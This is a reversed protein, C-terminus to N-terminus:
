PLVVEIMYSGEHVNDPNPIDTEKIAPINVLHGNGFYDIFFKGGVPALFIGIEPELGFGNLTTPPDEWTSYGFYQAFEPFAAPQLDTFDLNYEDGVLGLEGGVGVDEDAALIQYVFPMDDGGTLPLKAALLGMMAFNLTGSWPDRSIIRESGNEPSSIAGFNVLAFGRYTDAYLPRTIGRADYLADVQSIETMHAKFSGGDLEPLAYLYIRNDMYGADFTRNDSILIAYYQGATLHVTATKGFVTAEFPLETSTANDHLPVTWADAEAPWFAQVPGYHISFDAPLGFAPDGYIDVLNITVDYIEAANTLLLASNWDINDDDWFTWYNPFYGPENPDPYWVVDDDIEFKYSFPGPSLDDLVIIFEDGYKTMMNDPLWGQQSHHLIVQEAGPATVRFTIDIGDSTTIGYDVNLNYASFVLDGGEISISGVVSAERDLRYGTDHNTEIVYPEDITFEGDGNSDEFLVMAYSKITDIVDSVDLGRLQVYFDAASQQVPRILAAARDILDEARRLPLGDVLEIAMVKVDEVKDWVFRGARGLLECSGLALALAILLVVTGVRKM